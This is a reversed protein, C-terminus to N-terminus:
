NEARVENLVKSYVGTLRIGFNQMVEREFQLMYEDTYTQKQDPNVRGNALGGGAGGASRSIFDLGNIPDLNVEGPDYDKNGNLDRWTYTVSNYSNRHVLLLDNNYRM